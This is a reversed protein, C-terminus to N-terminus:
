EDGRGEAGIADILRNQERRYRELDIRIARDAWGHGSTNPTLNRQAEHLLRVIERESFPRAGLILTDILGMAALREIDRYVRADPPVLPTAQGRSRSPLVLLMAILTARRIM